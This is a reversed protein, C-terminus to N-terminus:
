SRYRGTRNRQSPWPNRNIPRYSGWVRRATFDQSMQGLLSLLQEQEHAELSPQNGSFSLVPRGEEQVIAVKLLKGNIEIEHEDRIPSEFTPKTTLM